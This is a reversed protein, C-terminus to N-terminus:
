AKAPIWSEAWGLKHAVALVIVVMALILGIGLPHNQSVLQQFSQIGLVMSITIIIGVLIGILSMVGILLSALTNKMKAVSDGYSKSINAWVM